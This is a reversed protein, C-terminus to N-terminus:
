SNCRIASSVSFPCNSVSLSDTFLIRLYRPLIPYSRLAVRALILWNSAVVNPLLLSNATLLQRPTKWRIVAQCRKVAISLRECLACENADAFRTRSLAIHGVDELPARSPAQALLSFTDLEGGCEDLDRCADLDRCQVAFNSLTDQDPPPLQVKTGGKKM